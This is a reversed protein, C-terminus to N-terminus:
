LSFPLTYPFQNNSEMGLEPTVTFGFAAKSIGASAMGVTAPVLLGIQSVEHAGSGAGITPTVLLGFKIHIEAWWGPLGM